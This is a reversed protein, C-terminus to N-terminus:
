LLSGSFGRRVQRLYCDSGEFSRGCLSEPLQELREDTLQISKRLDQFHGTVMAACAAFVLGFAVNLVILRTTKKM